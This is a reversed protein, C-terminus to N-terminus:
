AGYSVGRDKNLVKLEDLWIGYCDAKSSFYVVAYKKFTKTAMTEKHIELVIGIGYSSYHVLDGKKM